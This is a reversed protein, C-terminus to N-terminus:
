QEAVATEGLVLPQGVQVDRYAAPFAAAFAARATEDVDHPSPAVLQLPREALFDIHPTLEAASLGEYHLGGVVGVVPEAFLAEARTVITEVTPHGCGTILVVGEDAVHVALVQEWGLPQWLWFPFAQVYPMRGLSAVGPALLQPTEAVTAESDAITLPQAALVATEGWVDLGVAGLGGVHDPHNHSNVIQDIEEVAVGAHAMNALLPAPDTQDPNNGLDLLITATDTRLLYAVGHGQAYGDDVAAEEYLPLITLSQTSGLETLAADPMGMQAVQVAAWGLRALVVAALLGVALGLGKVTMRLITKM